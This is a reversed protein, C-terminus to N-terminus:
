SRHWEVEIEYLDDYDSYKKFYHISVSNNDRLNRSYVQYGQKKLETKIEYLCEEPVVFFANQIGTIAQSKIFRYIDKVKLCFPGLSHESSIKNAESAKM